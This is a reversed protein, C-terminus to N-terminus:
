EKPLRDSIWLEEVTEQKISVIDPEPDKPILDLQAEIPPMPVNPMSKLKRPYNGNHNWLEKPYRHLPTLQCTEWLHIISDLTTRHGNFSSRDLAPQWACLEKLQLMTADILPQPWQLKHAKNDWGHDILKLFISQKLQNLEDIMPGFSDSKRVWSEKVALDYLISRKIHRPIALVPDLEIGLSNLYVVICDKMVSSLTRHQQSAIADLREFYAKAIAITRWQVRPKNFSQPPRGRKNRPM